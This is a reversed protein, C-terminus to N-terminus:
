FYFAWLYVRPCLTLHNKFLPALVMWASLITEELFPQPSTEMTAWCILFRVLIWSYAPVIGPRAWHILSGTSSCATAYTASAAGIWGRAWSSRHAVPTARLFFHNHFFQIDVHLPIFNSKSIGHVFILEFHILSRFMLALVIFSKSSVCLFLKVVNSKAIIRQVQCWFCLCSRYGFFPYIPRWWFKFNRHMM